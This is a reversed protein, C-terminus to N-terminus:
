FHFTGTKFLATHTLFQSMGTVLYAGDIGYIHGGTDLKPRHTVSAGVVFKVLIHSREQIFENM